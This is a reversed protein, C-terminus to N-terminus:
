IRKENLLEELFKIDKKDWYHFYVTNSSKDGKLYNGIYVCDIDVNIGYKKAIKRIRPVNKTGQGKVWGNWPLYWVKPRKNFYEDFADLSMEIHDKITDNDLLSYNDHTWGHFALDIYEEHDRVYHIFDQRKELQSALISMTHVLEKKEFMNQIYVLEDISIGQPLDDSRYIM